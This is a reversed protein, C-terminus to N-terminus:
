YELFLHKCFFFSLAIVEKKLRIRETELKWDSGLHLLLSNEESMVIKFAITM